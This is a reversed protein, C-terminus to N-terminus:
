LLWKQVTIVMREWHRSQHGSRYEQAINCAIEKTNNKQSSLTLERRIMNNLSVKACDLAVVSKGTDAGLGACADGSLSVCNLVVTCTGASDSCLRKHYLIAM